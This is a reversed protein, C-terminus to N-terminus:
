PDTITPTGSSPLYGYGSVWLWWQIKGTGAAGGTDTYELLDDVAWPTHTGANGRLFWWTGDILTFPAFLVDDVLLFGSTSGSWEIEIDLPDENFNRFWNGVGLPIMLEAWGAALSAITISVSVSGLKLTVTGGAATGVTKNLMVRLFYPTNPDLRRVRMNALAQKVTVTGGGGTIKMAASTQAGPHSRYFNTTDQTLQAGGAAETWATFKPTATASYESFSSNTLLSGGAGTGAHASVITVRAAEGSGHTARLLADFSAATGVFEFVEAQRETGSNADARCRFAKKEVHCAQLQFNNEDVTLRAMDGNGVNSGGLTATTDFTISRSAITISNAVFYDYLARFLEAGSRYGGGYGGSGAASLIRGYEFLCPLLAANAQGPTVLNSLSARMANAWAPLEIATYEGELSQLLVDLKGGANVMTGDAFNRATELVDVVNKLQTRVEAETPTGSM